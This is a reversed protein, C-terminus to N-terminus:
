CRELEWVITTAIRRIWVGLGLYAFNKILRRRYWDGSRLVVSRDTLRRDCNERWDKRTLASFYLAGRTLKAMNRIATAADRDSLYQLVDYCILLDVPEMTVDVISGQMWGHRRCLYESSELGIYKARPLAKAFAPRMLGLGCGADLIRRVPHDAHTLIAAIMAARGRMQAATTVRTRPNRYFRNFYARDFRDV